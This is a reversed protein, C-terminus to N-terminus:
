SHNNTKTDLVLAEAGLREVCRQVVVVMIWSKNTVHKVMTNLILHTDEKSYYHVNFATEAGVFKRLTFYIM